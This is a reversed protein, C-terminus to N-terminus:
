DDCKLESPEGATVRALEDPAIAFVANSTGAAAWITEYRWFDEDIFTRLKSAHGFPPVGGIAYGTVERVKDADARRVKKRGVGCIAALKKEDLRNTGSVLTMTAEGDVLFVLSKVIQGVSCGIAYAADEATRTTAEFQRIEVDLGLGRASEALRQATPHLPAM